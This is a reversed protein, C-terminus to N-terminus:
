CQCGGCGEKDELSDLRDFIECLLDRVSSNSIQYVRENLLLLQHELETIAEESKRLTERVRQPTEDKTPEDAALAEELKFKAKQHAVLHQHVANIKVRFHKLYLPETSM